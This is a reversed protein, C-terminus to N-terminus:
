AKRRTNAPWYLADLQDVLGYLHVIVAPADEHDLGMNELAWEYYFIRAKLAWEAFLNFLSM